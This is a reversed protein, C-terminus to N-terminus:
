HAHMNCTGLKLANSHYMFLKELTKAEVNQISLIQYISYKLL